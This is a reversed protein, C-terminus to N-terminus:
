CETNLEIRMRLLNRIRLLHSYIPVALSLSTFLPGKSALDEGPPPANWQGIQAHLEAEREIEYALSPQHPQSVLPTSPGQPQPSLSKTFDFGRNLIGVLEWATPTPFAISLHM